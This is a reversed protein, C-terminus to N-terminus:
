PGVELVAAGADLDAEDTGGAHFPCEWPGDVARGSYQIAESRKGFDVMMPNMSGTQSRDRDRIVDRMKQYRGSERLAEFQEHLNFVVARTPFRRAPRSAAPHMGILYFARGAFSFSFEKAAPDDSVAPDWAHADAEHLRRLQAWLTKEFALEPDEEDHEPEAAPGSGPADFVAIFSAYDSADAPPEARGGDDVPRGRAFRELDAALGATAAASNMPGYLGFRYSDSNFAARAAVCPHRNPEVRHLLWDHVRRADDIRGTRHPPVVVGGDGDPACFFGPPPEPAAPRAARSDGLASPTHPVPCRELRRRTRTRRATPPALPM